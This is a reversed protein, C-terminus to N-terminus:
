EYDLKKTRRALRGARYLLAVAREYLPSAYGQVGIDQGDDILSLVAQVRAIETQLVALGETLKGKPIHKLLNGLCTTLEGYERNTLEKM